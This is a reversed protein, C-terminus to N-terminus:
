ADVPDLECTAHECEVTRSYEHPRESNEYLSGEAGPFSCDASNWAGGRRETFHPCSRDCRFDWESDTAVELGSVRYAAM